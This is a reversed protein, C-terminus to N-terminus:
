RAPRRRATCGQGFSGGGPRLRERRAAVASGASSLALFLMQRGRKLLLHESRGTPMRCDRELRAHWAPIGPQARHVDEELVRRSHLGQGPGLREPRPACPRQAGTQAGFHLVQRAVGQALPQLSRATVVPYPPDFALPEIPWAGAPLSRTTNATRISRIAGSRHCRAQRARRQPGETGPPPARPVLSLIFRGPSDPSKPGSGTTRIVALHALNVTRASPGATTRM